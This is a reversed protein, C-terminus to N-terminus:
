QLAELAALVRRLTREEFASSVAIRYRGVIVEIAASGTREQEPESATPQLRVLQLSTTSRGVDKRKLRHQWWSLASPRSIGERESFERATLGSQKWRQVRDRWVEAKAGTTGRAM